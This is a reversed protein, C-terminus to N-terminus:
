FPSCGLPRAYWPCVEQAGHISWVVLMRQSTPASLGKGKQAGAWFRFGLIALMRRALELAEVCLAYPPLLLLYAAKALHALVHLAMTAALLLACLQTCQSSGQPNHKAEAGGLAQLMMKAQQAAEHASTAPDEGTILTQVRCCRSPQSAHPHGESAGFSTDKSVQAQVCTCHAHSQFPCLVPAAPFVLLLM